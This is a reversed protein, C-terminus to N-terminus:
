PRLHRRLNTIEGEVETLQRQLVHHEEESDATDLKQKIRRADLELAELKRYAESEPNYVESM